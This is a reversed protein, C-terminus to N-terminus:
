SPATEENRRLYIPAFAGDQRLRARGSRVMELSAAFVAAVASRRVLPDSSVPPLFSALSTWDVAKGILGSLRKLAEDMSYLDTPLIHLAGEHRRGTHNGYAKLLDYLTVAYVPRAIVKFREPAGRRFVDRGLQPLAMLKAGADRMAQLRQLQFALAAALEAGTPEGETEPEPLLLRSKLYARWAAMVLYDAAMELRLQRARQIFALYQDALALISIKRLDVKQDRALTLLVDIPGEYGDLDLLLADEAIADERRDEEFPEEPPTM